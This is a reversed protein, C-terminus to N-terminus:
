EAKRSIISDVMRNTALVQFPYAFFSYNINLSLSIQHHVEAGLGDSNEFKFFEPVGVTPITKPTV